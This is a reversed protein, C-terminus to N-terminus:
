SGDRLHCAVWHGPRVERFAPEVAKCRAVAIPCRTHFRCGSPPKIPSPVDGTLVIRERKAAPKSVPNPVASLLAETYPHLPARFLSQKDTLEVLKGLYMVGVRHSIHEVVALDHAIFVYSLGYEDQLDMLLNIVQAQV